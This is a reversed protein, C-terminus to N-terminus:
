DEWFDPQTNTAVTTCDGCEPNVITFIDTPIPGNGNYILRYDHETVLTYLVLRENRDLDIIPPFNDRYDLTDTNCEYLYEPRSINFDSYDLFIRKESYSSVEFFGIIKEETSVTSSVNGMAFGPQSESLISGINGLTNITKYYTYAEIDQVYQKVLISYRDRIIGNLTSIKKVPFRLVINDELESTTTQIIDLSNKTQFCTETQDLNPTVIIDYTIDGAVTDNYNVIDMNAISPHPTIVKYTEQYEYRFYSANTSTNDSDVLIEVNDEILLPYLNNIQSTPTLMTPTSTYQKGNETTIELTYSVNPEAQFEIDSVYTGETNQTFTYNNQQDDFVIVSANNELIQENSELLFTRSLKIKHYKLQNTITGEVVLVSEFGQTEIEFEEKCNLSVLVLITGIIKYTNAKKM